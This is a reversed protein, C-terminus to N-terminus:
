RVQETYFCSIVSQDAGMMYEAVGQLNEHREIFHAM